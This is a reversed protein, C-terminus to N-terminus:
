ALSAATWTRCNASHSLPTDIKFGLHVMLEQAPARSSDENAHEHQAM